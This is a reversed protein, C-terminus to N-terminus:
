KSLEEKLVDLMEPRHFPFGGLEGPAVWVARQHEGSLKLEPKTGPVQTGYFIGLKKSARTTWRAIGCLKPMTPTLGTEEAIERLLGEAPNDSPELKGGPLTWTNAATEDYEKPLQLILVHGGGDRLIAYQRVDYFHRPRANPSTSGKRPAKAAGGKPRTGRRHRHAKKPKSM